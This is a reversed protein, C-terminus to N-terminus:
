ALNIGPSIVCCHDIESAAFGLTAGTESYYCDATVRTKLAIFQTYTKEDTKVVLYIVAAYATISADCFGCLSYSCACGRLSEKTTAERTPCSSSNVCRRLTGQLPHDSTSSVGFSWLIKWHQQGCEEQVQLSRLLTQSGLNCAIKKLIGFSELCRWQPHNLATIAWHTMLMHRRWAPVIQNQHTRLSTRLLMSRSNSPHPLLVSSESTSHAMRSFARQSLTCNFPKKKLLLVQWPMMLTFPNLWNRPHSSLYQELHYRLTSNLLFPSSCVGFVAWGTHIELSWNHGTWWQHREGMPLMACKRWPSWSSRKLTPWVYRPQTRTVVSLRM